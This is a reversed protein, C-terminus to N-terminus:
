DVSEGDMMSILMNELSNEEYVRYVPIKKKVLLKVSDSVEEESMYAGMEEGLSLVEKAKSDDGVKFKIFKNDERANIEKKIIKKDNLFLVESAVKSVESIIHSSVIITKDKFSLLLKRLEIIGKPDLGNTPEDLILVGPDKLLSIAIGLRQKMGLSYKKVILTDNIDLNVMKMVTEIRSFPTDYLLSFYRLNEYATLYDYFSVFDVIGSADLIADRYESRINYGNIIVEGKFKYLGLIIQLLTSKGSGNAGVLGYIKGRELKFSIDNLIVSSGRSKSVHNVELIYDM